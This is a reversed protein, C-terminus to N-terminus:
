LHPVERTSHASRALLSGIKALSVRKALEPTPAKELLEWLWRDEYVNGITLVQPVRPDQYGSVSRLADGVGGRAGSSQHGEPAGEGVNELANTGGAERAPEGM